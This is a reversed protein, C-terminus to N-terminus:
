IAQRDARVEEEAGMGRDGSIPQQRAVRLTIAAIKGAQREDRGISGFRENVRTGGGRYRQRGATERALPARRREGRPGVGGQQARLAQDVAGPDALADIGDVIRRGARPDGPHRTQAFGLRDARHRRRRANAGHAFRVALSRAAIRRRQNSRMMALRSSM